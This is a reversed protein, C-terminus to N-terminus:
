NLRGPRAAVNSVFSQYEELFEWLRACNEDIKSIDEVDLPTGSASAIRLARTRRLLASLISRMEVGSNRAFRVLAGELSPSIHESEAKRGADALAHSVSRSLMDSGMKDKLLFDSCGNKIADIAVQIQSEGAVMIPVAQRQLPHRKLMELAILGDGQVLRYDLIVLEFSMGDIKSAFEQISSAESFEINLDAQSCLRRIRLRDISSDDLILGQVGSHGFTGTENRSLTQQALDQM